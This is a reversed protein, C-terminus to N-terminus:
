TFDSDQLNSKSYILTKAIGLLGFMDLDLKLTEISFNSKQCELFDGFNIERLIQSGSFNKFKCETFYM